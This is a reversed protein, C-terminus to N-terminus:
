HPAARLSSCAFPGRRRHPIENDILVLNTLKPLEPFARCRPSAATTRSRPAGPPGPLAPLGQLSALRGNSWIALRQLGPLAPLGQLSALGGNGEITLEQLGPM